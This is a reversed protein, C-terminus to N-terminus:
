GNLKTKVMQSVREGEVRGALKGMVEGMVRGFQSVSNVGLRAIVEDIIRSLEADDIEEPLFEQLIEIEKKEKNIREDIDEPSHDTKKQKAQEYSQIADKRKRIERRVVMVVEDSTLEGRKAIKEYNLSSLLQRLVSVRLKNDALLAEKIKATLDKQYDM